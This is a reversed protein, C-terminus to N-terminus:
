PISAYAAHLDQGVELHAYGVRAAAGTNTGAQGAGLPEACAPQPQRQPAQWSPGAARWCALYRWAGVPSLMTSAAYLKVPQSFGPVNNKRKAHQAWATGM